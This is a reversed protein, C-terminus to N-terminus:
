LTHCGHVSIGLVLNGGRGLLGLGQLKWGQKERKPERRCGGDEAVMYIGCLAHMKTHSLGHRQELCKKVLCIHLIKHRHKSGM